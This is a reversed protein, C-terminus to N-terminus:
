QASSISLKKSIPIQFLIPNKKSKSMLERADEAADLLDKDEPEDIDWLKLTARVQYDFKSITSSLDM